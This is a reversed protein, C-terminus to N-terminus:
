NRNKSKKNKRRNNRERGDDGEEDDNENSGSNHGGVSGGRSSSSSQSSGSSDRSRQGDNVNPALPSSAPLINGYNRPSREQCVVIGLFLTILYCIFIPSFIFKM